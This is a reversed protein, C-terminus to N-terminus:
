FTLHVGVQMRRRFDVIGCIQGADGIDVFAAGACTPSALNERNLANFVDWKFDLRTRETIAFAKTLSLDVEGFGPGMLSNRGADGFTYRRRIPMPRPTTGSM